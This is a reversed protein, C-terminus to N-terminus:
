SGGAWHGIQNDIHKIADLLNQPVPENKNNIFAVTEQFQRRYALLLSQMEHTHSADRPEIEVEAEGRMIHLIGMMEVFQKMEEPPIVNDGDTLLELKSKERRKQIQKGSKKSQVSEALLNEYAELPVKEILEKTKEVVEKQMTRNMEEPSDNKLNEQTLLWAKLHLEPVIEVPSEWTGVGIWQLEVGSNRAKETFEDAFQAFLNKVKHRAQFEPLKIEKREAAEDGSQTLEQMQRAISEERQQIKEIEPLGISAMYETLNHRSMFGSLRGRILGIMNNIWSFEFTSPNPLEPTVRSAAKYVIQEVAERSFPYPNEPSPRPADGRFISFVLRVDTARVPIGDRSRSRVAKSREDQDRLEVHHDRIDLAHRFREFGDLMASGGPEGGTPGIVHPTGDAREFLAVSDLEVVVRGPGGILYVPSERSEEAIEGHRIRITENSGSLAVGSIFKRAVGVDELEFVDALYMAASQLAIFFPALFVPLYQLIRADQVINWLFDAFAGFAAQIEPTGAGTLVALLIRSIHAAWDSPPYYFLSVVFGSLLFLAFFYASRRAAKEPRLDFLKNILADRARASLELFLRQERQLATENATANM